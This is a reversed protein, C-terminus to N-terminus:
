GDVAALAFLREGYEVAAGDPVLVDVIRGATEAEVPLMLKMAEVIGVQQGPRVVDGLEVFPKAGPEPRRYFTGVIRATVYHEAAGTGGDAPAPAAAAAAATAATAETTATIQGHDPWEVEMEVQDAKIRIRRPARDLGSLLGLTSDQLRKLIEAAGDAGAPEPRTSLRIADHTTM